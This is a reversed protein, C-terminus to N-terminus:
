GLLKRRLRSSCMCNLSSIPDQERYATQAGATIFATAAALRRGGERRLRDLTVIKRIFNLDPVFVFRADLLHDRHGCAGADTIGSEVSRGLFERQAIDRQAELITDHGAPISRCM